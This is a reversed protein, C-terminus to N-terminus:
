IMICIYFILWCWPCSQIHIFDLHVLHLSICLFCPFVPFLHTSFPQLFIFLPYLLILHHSVFTCKRSNSSIVIANYRSSDCYAKSWHTLCVWRVFMFFLSCVHLMKKYEILSSCNGQCVGSWKLCYCQVPVLTCNNCIYFKTSCFSTFQHFVIFKINVHTDVIKFIFQSNQVYCVELV